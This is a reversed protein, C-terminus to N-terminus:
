ADEEDLNKLTADIIESAQQLGEAIGIHKQYSQFDSIRGEVMCEAIELRKNALNKKIQRLLDIITM